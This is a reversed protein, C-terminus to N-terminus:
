GYHPRNWQYGGEIMGKTLVWHQVSIRGTKFMAACSKLYFEWTRYFKEDYRANGKQIEPWAAKFNNWWANLTRSYDFGFTEVNGLKFYNKMVSAIQEETPLVGGPFIRYWIFPDGDGFGVISHLLFIGKPRLAEWATRFFVDYNKPGVHEFM